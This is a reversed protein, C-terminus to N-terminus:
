EHSFGFKGHAEEKSKPECFRFIEESTKEFTCACCVSYGRFNVYYLGKPIIDGCVRCYRPGEDETSRQHNTERQTM